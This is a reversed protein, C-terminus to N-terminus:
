HYLLLFFTPACRYGDSSSMPCVDPGLLLLEGLESPGKPSFLLLGSMQCTWGLPGVAGAHTGSGKETVVGRKGGAVPSWQSDKKSHRKNRKM